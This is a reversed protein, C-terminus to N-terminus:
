PDVGALGADVRANRTVRARLEGSPSIRVASHPFDERSLSRVLGLSARAPDRSPTGFGDLRLPILWGAIFRGRADLTVRLLASDALVGATSLTHSGALNGLSYAILRHRYWEM